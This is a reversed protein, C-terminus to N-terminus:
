QMTEQGFAASDRVLRGMSLAITVASRDLKLPQPHVTGFPDRITRNLGIADEVRVGYEVLEKANPMKPYATFNRAAVGFTEALSKM